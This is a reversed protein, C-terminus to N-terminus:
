KHHGQTYKHLAQLSQQQQSLLISQEKIIGPSSALAQELNLLRKTISPDLSTESLDPERDTTANSNSEPKSANAALLIPHPNAVSQHPKALVEIEAYPAEVRVYPIPRTVVKVDKIQVDDDSTTAGYVLQAFGVPVIIALNLTFVLLAHHLPLEFQLGARCLLHAQRKEYFVWM